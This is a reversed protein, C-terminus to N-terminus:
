YDQAESNVTLFTVRWGATCVVRVTIARKAVVFSLLLQFSGAADLSWPM